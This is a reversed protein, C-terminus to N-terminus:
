TSHRPSVGNFTTRHRYMTLKFTELCAHRGLLPPIDDRHLFGLPIERRWYGLKMPWRRVLYVRERGGIGMTDFQRSDRGLRIGLHSAYPRPLLTYDAGTDVLAIVRVWGQIKRSWLAVTAVPRSVSGFLPSPQREFPFTIQRRAM